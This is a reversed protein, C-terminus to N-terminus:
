YSSINFVHERDEAEGGTLLLLTLLRRAGEETVGREHSFCLAAAMDLMVMSGSSLGPSNTMLLRNASNATSASFFISITIASGSQGWRESTM